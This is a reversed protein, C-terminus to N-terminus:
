KATVVDAKSVKTWKGDIYAKVAFKDGAAGNVRASTKSTTGLKKLKGDAVKYVRYKTAGDQADWKLTVKGNDDVKATLKATGAFSATTKGSEIFDAKEGNKVYRVCITYTGKDLSPMEFTQEAATGIKKYSLDGKKKAYIIFEDAGEKADWTLTSGNLQVNWTKYDIVRATATSPSGTTRPGSIVPVPAAPTVPTVPEEPEEDKTWMATVTMDEAPMTAPIEKDWGAFTYGTKTPDEPAIVETGYDQTIPAIESGGDTDFTITYTIPIVTVTCTATKDDSTEETGNTATVTINATGVAVATVVGTDSVTAISEESSSWIVTKFLANDPSITATLTETDGEMLTTSTKNLTVSSVDVGDFYVTLTKLQVLSGWATTPQSFTVSTDNIDTVTITSYKTIAGSLTGKDVAISGGHEVWGVTAAIRRIEAGNLSSVTVTCDYADVLQGLALGDGDGATGSVKFDTGIYDKGGSVLTFSEEIEVASATLGMGPVCMIVMCLSLFLSLVRYKTKIMNM